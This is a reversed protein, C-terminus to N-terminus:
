NPPRNPALALRAIAQSKRCSGGALAEYVAHRTYLMLLRVRWHGVAFDCRYPNITGLGGCRRRFVVSENSLGFASRCCLRNDHMRAIFRREATGNLGGGHTENASSQNPWRGLDIVDSAFVVEIDAITFKDIDSVAICGCRLRDLQDPRSLTLQQHFAAQM